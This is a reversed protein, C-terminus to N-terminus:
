PYEEAQKQQKEDNPSNMQVVLEGHMQDHGEGCYITCHFRHTGAKDATFEVTVTEGPPLRRDIDFGAIGIGHMVDESTVQLRVMEGQRVVIRAPDFEFNIAKVEITRVGDSLKGTPTLDQDAGSMEHGNGGETDSHGHEGSTGTNQTEDSQHRPTGEHLDEGQQTDGAQRNCGFLFLGVALIGTVGWATLTAKTQRMM